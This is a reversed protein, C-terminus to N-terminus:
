GGGLFAAYSTQAHIAVLSHFFLLFRLGPVGLFSRAWCRPHSGSHGVLVHIGLLKSGLGYQHATGAARHMLLFQDGVFIVQGVRAGFLGAGATAVDSGWILGQWVLFCCAVAYLLKFHSFSPIARGPLCGVSAVGAPLRALDPGFVPILANIVVWVARKRLGVVRPAYELSRPCDLLATNGESAQARLSLLATPVCVSRSPHLLAPVRRASRLNGQEPPLGKLFERAVSEL